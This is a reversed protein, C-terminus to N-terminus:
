GGMGPMSLRQRVRNQIREQREFSATSPLLIVMENEEIGHIIETHGFDTIGTKVARPVYSDNKVVAVWYLGGFQYRSQRQRGQESSAPINAMLDKLETDQSSSLKRRSETITTRLIEEPIGLMLAAAPIDKDNRLAITPVAVVNEAHAININVEANMGPRLLRDQNQLRIIVPFMTVNQDIIAQPEIKLVQGTFPQNPFAAVKVSVQMGPMIKGIDTEDVLTRVIVTSLDAMKLLITGGGVDRTPSSIVQGREVNKEIITGSIPARVDTDDLAIRANELGVQQSIVAAEADALALQATEYETDTIIGKDLLSKTRNIQTIAIKRRAIAAELDAQAQDVSNKPTRKDIQVLLAGQEVQDGTEANLVLIEGSAKSKVEITTEPEIVGAAEVSIEIDQRSVTVTEFIDEQEVAEQQECSLLSIVAIVILILNFNHRNM